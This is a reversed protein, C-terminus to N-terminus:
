DYRKANIFCVTSESDLVTIDAADASLAFYSSRSYLPYCVAEQLLLTEAAFCGELIENSNSSSYLNDIIGSYNNSSYRFVGGSNFKNLFDITNEGSADVGTLAIQYKGSAVAKDIDEPLATEVTVALDIGFTQQWLQLQYRMQTEFEAPCLIGLNIKSAELESLATEWLKQAESINFSLQKTQSGVASRYNYEGIRCSGPVLGQQSEIGSSSADFLAPDIAHSLAQRLSSNKLYSDACNFALLMVTNPTEKLVKANEPLVSDSSIFAASVDGKGLKEAISKNSSDFSFVVSAPLVEQGGAYYNNKKITLSTESDWSSIYFPGNCMIYRNSLGYRGSMANFFDENCPMCVSETLRSLFDDCKESLRIELTYDGKAEAGLNSVPERGAIIDSANEVVSLRHANPSATAPNVARQMAFAFDKAKVTETSFHEYLESGLESKLTSPCFWETDPKLNFTYVLGDESVSWSEAIGPIIEGDSNYRVLGEFVNNIVIKAGSESAFQPDLTSPSASIAYLITRGTGSESCSSCALLMTFILFVSFLRKM